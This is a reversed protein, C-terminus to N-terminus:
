PERGSSCEEFSRSSGLDTPSLLSALADGICKKVQRVSQREFGPVVDLGRSRLFAVVTGVDTQSGTCVDNAQNLTKIVNARDLNLKGM